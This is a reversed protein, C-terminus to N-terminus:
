KSSRFAKICAQAFWQPAYVQSADAALGEVVDAPDRRPGTIASTDMSTWSGDLDGVWIDYHHRQGDGLILHNGDTGANGDCQQELFVDPVVRITDEASLLEDCGVGMQCIKQVLVRDLVSRLLQPQEERLSASKLEHLQGREQLVSSQAGHAGRRIRRACAEHDDARVAIRIAPAM